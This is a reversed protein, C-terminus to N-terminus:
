ALILRKANFMARKSGTFINTRGSSITCALFRIPLSTSYMSAASSSIQSRSLPATKTFFLWLPSFLATFKLKLPQPLLCACRCSACAGAMIASAAPTGSTRASMQKSPPASSTSPRPLAIKFSLQMRLSLRLGPMLLASHSFAKARNKPMSCMIQSGPMFSASMVSECM